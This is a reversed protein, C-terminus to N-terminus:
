ISTNNLEKKGEWASFFNGRRNTDSSLNSVKYYTTLKLHKTNPYKEFIASEAMVKECVTVGLELVPSYNLRKNVSKIPLAERSRGIIELNNTGTAVRRGSKYMM